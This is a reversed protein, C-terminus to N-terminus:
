KKEPLTFHTFDDDQDPRVNGWKSFDYRNAIVRLSVPASHSAYITLTNQAINEEYYVSGAFAPALSVVLNEWGSGFDTIQYFLWLDSGKPLSSFDIVYAYMNKEAIWV